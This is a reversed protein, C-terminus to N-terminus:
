IAKIVTLGEQANPHTAGIVQFTVLHQESPGCRGGKRGAM